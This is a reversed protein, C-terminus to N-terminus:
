PRTDFGQNSLQNKRKKGFIFPLEIDPIISLRYLFVTMHIRCQPWVFARYTVVRFNQNQIYATQAKDLTALGM